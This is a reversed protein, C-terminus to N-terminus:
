NHRQSVHNCYTLPVLVVQVHNQHLMETHSQMTLASHDGDPSYWSVTVGFNLEEGGANGLFAHVVASCGFLFHVYVSNCVGDKTM